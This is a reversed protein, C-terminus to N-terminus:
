SPLRSTTSKQCRANGAHFELGGKPGDPKLCPKIPEARSRADYTKLMILAYHSLGTFASLDCVHHVEIPLVITERPMVVRAANRHMAEVDAPWQDIFAM